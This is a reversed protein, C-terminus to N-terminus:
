FVQKVLSAVDRFPYKSMKKWFNSFFNVDFLVINDFDNGPSVSWTINIDYSYTSINWTPVCSVIQLNVPFFEYLYFYHHLEGNRQWITHGKDQPGSVANILSPPPIQTILSNGAM